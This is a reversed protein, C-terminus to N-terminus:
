STDLNCKLAWQHM